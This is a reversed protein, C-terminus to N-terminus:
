AQEKDHITKTASDESEQKLIQIAAHNVMYLRFMISESTKAISPMEGDYLRSNYITNYVEQLDSADNLSEYLEWAKNHGKPEGLIEYTTHDLDHEQYFKVLGDLNEPPDLIDKNENYFTDLNDRLLEVLYKDLRKKCLENQSLYDHELKSRIYYDVDNGALFDLGRAVRFTLTGIDGGVYIGM